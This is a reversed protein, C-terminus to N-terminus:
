PCVNYGFEWIGDVILVFLRDVHVVETLLYHRTEFARSFMFEIIQNQFYIGLCWVFYVERLCISLLDVMYYCHVIQVYYHIVFFM